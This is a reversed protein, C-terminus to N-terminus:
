AKEVRYGNRYGKNVAMLRAETLSSAYVWDVVSNSSENIIAYFYM